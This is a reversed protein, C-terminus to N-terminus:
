TRDRHFARVLDDIAVGDITAGAFACRDFAVNRFDTTKIVAGSLSVNELTSDSLDCTRITVKAMRVNSFTALSLDADEFTSRTLMARAVNLSENTESIDM